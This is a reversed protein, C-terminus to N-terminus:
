PKCARRWAGPGVGVARAFERTLHSQSGFGSRAAIDAIPLDSALLLNKAEGIRLRTFYRHPPLGTSKKFAAAFHGAALGCERALQAISVPEDLSSRMIEKARREQWPSLGGRAPRSGFTVGAYAFAAHALFATTVHEVFPVSIPEPARLNPLLLSTLAMAAPDPLDRQRRLRGVPRGGHERCLNDLVRRPVYFQVADFRGSMRSQPLEELDVVSVAGTPVAGSFRLSSGLWLEHQDIPALQVVISFAPEPTPSPTRDPGASELVLHTIAVKLDGDVEVPLTSSRNCGFHRSLRPGFLGERNATAM